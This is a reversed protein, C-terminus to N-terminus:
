NNVIDDISNIISFVKDLHTMQILHNIKAPVNILHMAINNKRLNSLASVLMGLGSSNMAQVKELDLIVNSVGEAHLSSIVSNFNMADTGGLVNEKLEILATDSSKGIITHKYDM